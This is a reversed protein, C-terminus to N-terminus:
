TRTRRDTRAGQSRRAQAAQFLQQALQEDAREAETYDVAGQPTLKVPPLVSNFPSIVGSSCGGTSSKPSMGALADLSPQVRLSSSISSNASSRRRPASGAKVPATRAEPRETLRSGSRAASGARVWTSQAAASSTRRQSSPPSSGHPSSGEPACSPPEDRSPGPPSGGRSALM